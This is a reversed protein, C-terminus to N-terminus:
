FFRTICLFGQVADLVEDNETELDDNDVIEFNHNYKTVTMENLRQIIEEYQDPTINVRKWEDNNQLLWLIAEKLMPIRVKNKESVIKYQDKTLNGYIIVVINANSADLYAVSRLISM